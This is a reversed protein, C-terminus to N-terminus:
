SRRWIADGIRWHIGLAHLFTYLKGLGHSKLWNQFQQLVDPFVKAKDVVEQEIGTLAKCFESLIPNIQPKVYAHFVDHIHPENSTNVLVAPFEIIEHPYGPPNKEECTAEFDIILLYEANRNRHPELM